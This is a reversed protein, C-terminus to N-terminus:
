RNWSDLYEDYEEDAFKKTASGNSKTSIIFNVLEDRNVLQIENPNALTIAQETFYSNTVIAGKDAGYYSKAAVIEQVAKVGVKGSYRKAQVVTILGNKTLVLDAGFDGSIPTHKVQYGAEQFLANLYREFDSGSMTDITSIGSDPPKQQVRITEKKPQVVLKEPQVVLKEPQVVMESTSVQGKNKKKDKYILFSVCILVAAFFGITSSIEENYGLYQNLFSGILAVIVLFAIIGICALCCTENDKNTVESM